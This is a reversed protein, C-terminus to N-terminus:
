IWPDTIRIIIRQKFFICKILSTVVFAKSNMSYAPFYNPEENGELHHTGANLLRTHSPAGDSQGRGGLEPTLVAAM